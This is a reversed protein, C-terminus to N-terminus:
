PKLPFAIIALATDVEFLRVRQSTPRSLSRSGMAQLSEPAEFQCCIVAIVADGCAIGNYGNASKFFKQNFPYVGINQTQKLRGFM